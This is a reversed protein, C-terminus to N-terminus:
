GVGSGRDCRDRRARDIMRGDNNAIATEPDKLGRGTLVCVIQEAGDAGYKLLGPSRRRRPPSASCGKATPLCGTPRSSRRTPSSASRAAPTPRPRWRTRGACPTASASRARSRKRTSSRTGKSWRRPAPRRTASADAARRRGRPVRALLLHHQRRQRGPHLACGARRRAGRPDRLRGDEARRDPVRQGLQRARDPEDGDARARADAGPRLQGAALDGARRAHADAGDQGPRDQGGPRDRRLHHRRQRRLRGASAATNGTSACIVAKAGDRVAASLACTM